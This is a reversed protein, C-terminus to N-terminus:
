IVALLSCSCKYWMQRDIDSSFKRKFWGRINIIKQMKYLEEKAFALFERQKSGTEKHLPPLNCASVM